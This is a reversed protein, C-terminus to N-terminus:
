VFIPCFGLSTTKHYYYVLVEIKTVVAPIWKWSHIFNHRMTILITLESKIFLQVYLHASINRVLKDIPTLRGPSVLQM